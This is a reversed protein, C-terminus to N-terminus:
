EPPDFDDCAGDIASVAAEFFPGYDPECVSVEVGRDGFRRVFSRLVPSPEADQQAANCVSNPLDRDGIVGIVVVAEPDGNKAQIVADYWAQPDGASEGDDDEDTIITVVLIADDRLFGENCGGPGNKGPGLAEVVAQMPTEVVMGDIGVNAVCAFAGVLDPDQETIYRSDGVLDCAQGTAGSTTKGSALQDDCGPPPVTDCSQHNCISIGGGCLVSCCSPDPQCTCVDGLCSHTGEPEGADTDIAMVHFDEAEVTQEIANMFRPFSTILNQQEDHMSVSNDVVFLFDVKDCGDDESTSTDENPEGIDFKPEGDDDDDDQDDDSGDDDDETADEDESDAGDSEVDDGHSATSDDSAHPGDGGLTSTSQDGSVSCAALLCSLLPASRSVVLMEPATAVRRGSPQLSVLPQYLHHSEVSRPHIALAGLQM